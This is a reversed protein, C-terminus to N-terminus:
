RDGHLVSTNAIAEPDLILLAERNQPICGQLYPTLEPSVTGIPSQIIDKAFRTVGKVEKVVLGLSVNNAEIIVISYRQAEAAIASLGLLQPLDVVWFVRSRQNLLGLVCPPMNPMYTLRSAPVISAERAFEMPLAAETQADLQLKLYAEGVNNLSRNLLQNNM